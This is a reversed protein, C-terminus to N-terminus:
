SVEDPAATPLFIFSSLLILCILLIGGTNYNLVFVGQYYFAISNVHTYM